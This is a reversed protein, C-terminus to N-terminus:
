TSGKLSYTIANEVLYKEVEDEGIIKLRGDQYDIDAYRLQKLLMVLQILQHNTILDIDISYLSIM